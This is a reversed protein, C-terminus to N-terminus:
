AWFCVVLVEGGTTVQTSLLSQLNRASVIIAEAALIATGSSRRGTKQRCASTHHSQPM